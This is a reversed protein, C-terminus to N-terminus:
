VKHLAAAQTQAETSVYDRYFDLASKVHDSADKQADHMDEAAAKAQDANARHLAADADDNAQAARAGAAFPTAVAQAGLGAGRFISSVDNAKAIGLQSPDDGLMKLGEIGGAADLAGQAAMGAAEIWGETEIDQAKQRMADVQKQDESAEEAEYAQRAESSVTRQTTGTEVALAAMEAGPDGSALLQNLIQPNQSSTVNSITM